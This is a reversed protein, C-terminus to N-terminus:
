CSPKYEAIRGICTDPFATRHLLVIVYILVIIALMYAVIKLKYELPTAFFAKFKNIM